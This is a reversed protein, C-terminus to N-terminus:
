IKQFHDKRSSWSYGTVWGFWSLVVVFCALFIMMMVFAIKSLM